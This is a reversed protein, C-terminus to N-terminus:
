LDGGDFFKRMANMRAIRTELGCHHSQSFFSSLASLAEVKKGGLAM